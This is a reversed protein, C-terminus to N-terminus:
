QSAGVVPSLDSVRRFISDFRRKTLPRSRVPLLNEAPSLCGCLQAKRTGTKNDPCFFERLTNWQVLGSRPPKRSDEAARMKTPNQKDRVTTSKEKRANEADFYM